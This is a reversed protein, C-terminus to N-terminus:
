MECRFPFRLTNRWGLFWSGRGAPAQLSLSCLMDTSTTSSDYCEYLHQAYSYYNSPMKSLNRHFRTLTCVSELFCRKLILHAYYKRRKNVGGPWDGLRRLHNNIQSKHQFLIVCKRCNRTKASMKCSTKSVITLYHM